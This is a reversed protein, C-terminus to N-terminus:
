REGGGYQGDELPLGRPHLGVRGNRPPMRGSKNRVELRLESGEDVFGRTWTAIRHPAETGVRLELRPGKMRLLVGPGLAVSLAVVVAAFTSWATIENKTSELM